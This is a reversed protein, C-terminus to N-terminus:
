LRWVQKALLAKNFCLLDRFGMRGQSKSLSLKSWSMWHICKYNEKHGWYFKAMLSNIELCLTKPLM